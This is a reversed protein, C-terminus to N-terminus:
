ISNAMIVQDLIRLFTDREEKSLEMTEILEIRLDNNDSVIVLNHSVVTGFIQQLENKRNLDHIIRHLVDMMIGVRDPNVRM